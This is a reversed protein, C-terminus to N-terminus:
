SRPVEHRRLAFDPLCSLLFAFAEKDLWRSSQTSVPLLSDSTPAIVAPRCDYYM